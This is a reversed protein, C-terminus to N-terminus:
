LDIASCKLLYNKWGFCSFVWSVIMRFKDFEFYTCRSIASYTAFLKPDAQFSMLHFQEDTEAAALSHEYSDRRPEASGPWLDLVVYVCCVATQHWGATM